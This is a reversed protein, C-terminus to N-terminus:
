VFFTREGTRNGPCTKGDISKAKDDTDSADQLPLYTYKLNWNLKRIKISSAIFISLCNTAQCEVLSSQM